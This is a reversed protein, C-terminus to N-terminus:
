SMVQFSEQLIVEGLSDIHMDCGELMSLHLADNAKKPVNQMVELGDKIEGQFDDDCCSLLEKLLLQYKTIRQVPKILYAPIPHEINYKRQVDDYFTGSQSVLVKNSEPQSKCYKVYIDFKPAYTVFCHGVDEPLAQYKEIAQLFTTKHFQLIEEMNGFIVSAKGHLGMPAYTQCTEYYYTKLCVELDKVYVRETQLLEKMILEKKRASKRKEESIEKNTVEAVTDVKNELSPDSHRDLSLSAKNDESQIGLRGELQCRYKDMRSSFHKYAHDVRSAWERITVDHVNGKELLTDAVVLLIKVRERIDKAIGKFENHDKLLCETEERTEGLSTHTALYKEGTETIWDLCQKATNEFLIYQRCQDLKKKKQTWHDLVKNEQGMLDELISRVKSEPGWLGVDGKMNYYHQSRNSYKLFTEATRRALTCARLFGEKQEQHRNIVLSISSAKDVAAGGTGAGGQQSKQQNNQLQQTQQSQLLQDTNMNM